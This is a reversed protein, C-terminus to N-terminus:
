VRTESQMTCEARQICAMCGYTRIMTTTVLCVKGYEARGDRGARIMLGGHWLLAVGVRERGKGKPTNRLGAWVVRRQLGGGAAQMSAKCFPDSFCGQQTQTRRRQDKLKLKRRMYGIGKRRMGSEAIRSQFQLACFLVGEKRRCVMEICGFM